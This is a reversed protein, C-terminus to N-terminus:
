ALAKTAKRAQDFEEGATLLRAIARAREGDIETRILRGDKTWVLFFGNQHKSVGIQYVGTDIIEWVFDGTRGSRSRSAEVPRVFVRALGYRDDIGTIRAVWPRYGLHAHLAIEIAADM